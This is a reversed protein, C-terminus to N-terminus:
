KRLLLASLLAVFGATTTGEMWPMKKDKILRRKSVAVGVLTIILTIFIDSIRVLTLINGVLIGLTTIAFSLFLANYPVKKENLKKLQEKIPAADPIYTASSLTYLYRVAALYCIFATALMFAISLFIVPHEVSPGLVSSFIHAIPNATDIRKSGFSSQAFAYAVLGTLATSLLNSAYFSTPIDKDPNRTEQVFKMLTDFGALIFYFYFISHSINPTTSLAPPTEFLHGQSVGQFLGFAGAAVLFGLIGISALNIVNRNADIGQLAFGSMMSLITLALGIQSSYSATPLIDKAAYFLITAVSFTNFGVISLSTIWSAIGGLQEYVVDSESTNSKFAHYAEEYLKSAGQFLLTVLGIAAPAAPGAAVTAEGILNFGGSGLISAIGFFLLDKLTLIKLLGNPSEM